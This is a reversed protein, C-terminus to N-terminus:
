IDSRVADSEIRYGRENVRRWDFNHLTKLGIAENSVNVASFPSVADIEFRKNTLFKCVFVNLCRMRETETLAFYNRVGRKIKGKLYAM